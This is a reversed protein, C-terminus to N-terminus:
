LGHGATEHWGHPPRIKLRVRSRTCHGPWVRAGPPIAHRQRGGREGGRKELFRTLRMGPEVVRQEVHDPVALEAARLQLAHDALLAAEEEVRKAVRRPFDDQDAAVRRRVLVELALARQNREDDLFAALVGDPPLVVACANRKMRSASASPIERSSSKAVSYRGVVIMSFFSSKRSCRDDVISASQPPLMAVSDSLAVWTWRMASAM